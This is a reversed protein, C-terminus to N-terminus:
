DLRFPRRIWSNWPSGTGLERDAPGAGGGGAPFVGPRTLPTFRPPGVAATRVGPEGPRHGPRPSDLQPGWGFASSTRLATAWVGQVPAPPPCDLAKRPPTIGPCRSPAACPRVSRVHCPTSSLLGVIESAMPGRPFDRSPSQLFAVGGAPGSRRSGSPARTRARGWRRDKM